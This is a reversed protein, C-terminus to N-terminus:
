HWVYIYIYIYSMLLRLTLSGTININRCLSNDNDAYGFAPVDEESGMKGQSQQSVSDNSLMAVRTHQYEAALTHPRSLPGRYYLLRVSLTYSM